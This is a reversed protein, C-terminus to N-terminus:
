VSSVYDRDEGTWVLEPFYKGGLEVLLMKLDKISINLITIKWEFTCFIDGGDGEGWLFM